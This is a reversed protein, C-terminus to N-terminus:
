DKIIRAMLFIIASVAVVAVSIIVINEPEFKVQVPPLEGENLLRQMANTKLIENWDM